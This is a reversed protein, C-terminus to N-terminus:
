GAALGALATAAEGNRLVELLVGTNGSAKLVGRMFAVAPDTAAAAVDKVGITFVVDAGDPGEVRENGKSVAVRYQASM